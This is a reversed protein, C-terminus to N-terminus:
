GFPCLFQIVIVQKIYHDTSALLDILIYRHICNLERNM